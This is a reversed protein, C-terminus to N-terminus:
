PRERTRSRSTDRDRSATPTAPSSQPVASVNSQRGTQGAQVGGRELLKDLPLYMLSNGSDGGGLLVKATSGYVQEITELYLRERTVEPARQYEVLIKKFRDADGTADAILGERYGRADEVIRSAEGRAKPLVDNRYSEAELIYREQDRSAKIVDQVADRVPRPFETNNLNVNTVEIGVDYRNLIRQIEARTEIAVDNRLTTQIDEM